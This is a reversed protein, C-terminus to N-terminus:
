WQGWGRVVIRPTQVAVAPRNKAYDAKALEFQKEYMAIQAPDNEQTALWMKTGALILAVPEDTLDTDAVFEAAPRRYHFRVNTGSVGAYATIITGIDNAEDVRYDRGEFLEKYNYPSNTTGISRDIKILDALANFAASPVSMNYAGDVEAATAFSQIVRKPFANRMASNAALKVDADAFTKAIYYSTSANLSAVSPAFLLSQNGASFGTVRVETTNAPGSTFRLWSDVRDFEGQPEQRASDYMWTTTYSAVTGDVYQRVKYGRLSDKKIQLFTTTSGAM